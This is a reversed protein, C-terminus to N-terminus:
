LPEHEIKESLCRVKETVYEFTESLMPNFPKKTRFKMTNFPAIISVCVLAM